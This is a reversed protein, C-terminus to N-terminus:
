ANRIRANEELIWFGHETSFEKEWLTFLLPFLLFVSYSHFLEYPCLHFSHSLPIALVTFSNLGNKVLVSFHVRFCHLNIILLHLRPHLKPCEDGHCRHGDHDQSAGLWREGMTGVIGPPKPRVPRPVKTRDTAMSTAAEPAVEVAIAM